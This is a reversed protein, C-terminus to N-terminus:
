LYEGGHQMRPWLLVASCHAKSHIDIATISAALTYFVCLVKLSFDIVIHSKM